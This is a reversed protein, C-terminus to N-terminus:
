DPACSLGTGELFPALGSSNGPPCLVWKGSGSANSSRAAGAAGGASGQGRGSGSGVTLGGRGGGFGSTGAAASTTAGSGTASNTTTANAGATTTGSAGPTAATTNASPGNVTTGVAPLATAGGSTPYGNRLAATGVNGASSRAIQASAPGVALAAALLALAAVRIM